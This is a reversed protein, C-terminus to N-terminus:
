SINMFNRSHALLLKGMVQDRGQFDKFAQSFVVQLFRQRHNIMFFYKLVAPCFIAVNVEKQAEKIGGKKKLGLSFWPGALSQTRSGESASQWM